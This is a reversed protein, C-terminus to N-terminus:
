EVKRPPSTTSVAVLRSTVGEPITTTAPRAAEAFKGTVAPLMTQTVRRAGLFNTDFVRPVVGALDAVSPLGDGRLNIGANNM